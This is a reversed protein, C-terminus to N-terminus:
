AAPSGNYWRRRFSSLLERLSLAAFEFSLVNDRSSLTISHTYPIAKKLISKTGIPFATASLLEEGAPNDLAQVVFGFECHSFGVSEAGEATEFEGEIM